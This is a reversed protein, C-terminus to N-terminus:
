EADGEDPHMWHLTAHDVKDTFLVGDLHDVEHLVVRAALSEMEWACPKGSRDYAEIRVKEAREVDGYLGPISLCGEQGIQSGEQSLIVPNILALPKSGGPAIVIVRKLVGLQPAALGIGNAKKMASVMQDILSQVEKLSTVEEAKVRLVPDPVKVVPRDDNQEYLYKFEEPVVIEM